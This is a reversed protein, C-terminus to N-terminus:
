QAKQSSLQAQIVEEATVDYLDSLTLVQALSVHRDGHEYKHVARVTVGLAEAVESCTKGAQKRLDRLTQM